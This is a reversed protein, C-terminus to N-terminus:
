ELRLRGVKHGSCTLDTVLLKRRVGTRPDRAAWMVVRQSFPRGHAAMVMATASSKLSPAKSPSTSCQAQAGRCPPM